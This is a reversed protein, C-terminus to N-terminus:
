RAAAAAAAEEEAARAAQLAQERMAAMGRPKDVIRGEDRLWRTHLSKATRNTGLTVAKQAWNNPGETQLLHRFHELEAESWPKPKPKNPDKKVVRRKKHKKGVKRVPLAASGGSSQASASVASGSGSGHRQVMSTVRVAAPKVARAANHFVREWVTPGTSSARGDGAGGGRRASRDDDSGGAESDGDSDHADGKHLEPPEIAHKPMDAEKISCGELQDICYTLQNSSLLMEVPPPVVSGAQFVDASVASDTDADMPSRAPPLISMFNAPSDGPLENSMSRKLAWKTATIGARQRSDERSMHPLPSLALDDCFLVDPVSERDGPISLDMGSIADDMSHLASDENSNSFCRSLSRSISEVRGVSMEGVHVPAPIVPARPSMRM